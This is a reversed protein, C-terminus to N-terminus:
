KILKYSLLFLWVLCTQKNLKNKLKHWFIIYITFTAKQSKFAYQRPQRLTLALHLCQNNMQTWNPFSGKYQHRFIPFNFYADWTWRPSPSWLPQSLTVLKAMKKIQSAERLISYWCKSTVSLNAYFRFCSVIALTCKIHDSCQGTTQMDSWV